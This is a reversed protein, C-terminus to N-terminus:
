QHDRVSPDEADGHTEMLQRSDSVIRRMTRWPLNGRSATVGYHAGNRIKCFKLQLSGLRNAFRLLCKCGDLIQEVTKGASCIASGLQNAAM